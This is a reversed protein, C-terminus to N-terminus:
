KFLRSGRRCDERDDRRVQRDNGILARVEGAMDDSFESERGAFALHGAPRLEDAIDSMIEAGDATQASRLVKGELKAQAHQQTM